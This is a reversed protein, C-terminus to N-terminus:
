GRRAGGAVVEVGDPAEVATVTGSGDVEVVVPRGGVRIGEVRIAGFPAPALPRVELVGQPADARLGLVTSVLAGASAAAWAQPRCSAPYPAPRGQVPEGGFLEPWRFGTATAVDVLATACRAAEAGLGERALGHGCIATDHTWVSGTHYGMPNYAPNDASLTRVGLAGTMDPGALTAAVRAAEEPTLAGTGLVHGMTSGVGDVLGGSGDVAMALHDRVGGRVWFTTRVREALEHAWARWPGGDPGLVEDFLDAAGLAAEVAYGQAEVLAISGEAIAGSATRMADGSDKWGQNSLGTGTTDLYRIFGDPSEDVARRLWGLAGDLAPALTVVDSRPLGWRWADHLLCVWLATADVTGYYAPPLVLHHTPDVFTARRLEHLIKGPQEAARPDDRRGQRRALARLTGRALDTGFPLCMRAAWISDRGFLTLYWPTGAAAFGDRPDEPDALVLHRLDELSRQVTTDLRSDQSRVRVGSWDVLHSGPAADFPTGATREVTVELVLTTSGGPALDVSWHARLAGADESVTGGVARVRTRHRADAWGGTDSAELALPLTKSPPAGTKVEHLEAGDGQVTVVVSCAVSATARSTVTLEERAASGELRRVRRVEVTPDAGADGVNRALLLCETTAGHSGSVVGVPAVDDVTVVLRSVVRRDDVYIGTAEGGPASVDVDGSFLALCTTNGHVATELRHLWPQRSRGVAPPIDSPVRHFRGIGADAVGTRRISARM